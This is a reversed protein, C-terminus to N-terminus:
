MGVLVRLALGDRLTDADMMAEAVGEGEGRGRGESLGPAADM